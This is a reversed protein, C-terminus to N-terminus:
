WGSRRQPEVPGPRLVCTGTPESYSETDPIWPGDPSSLALRLAAICELRMCAVPHALMTFTGAEIQMALGPALGHPPVGRRLNEEHTSGMRRAYTRADRDRDYAQRHDVLRVYGYFRVFPEVRDEQSEAAPHVLDRLCVECIM